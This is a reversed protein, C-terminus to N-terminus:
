IIGEKEWDEFIKEFGLNNDKSHQKMSLIKDPKADDEIIEKFHNEFKDVAIRITNKQGHEDTWQKLTIQDIGELKDKIKVGLKTTIWDKAKM